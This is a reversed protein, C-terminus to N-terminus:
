KIAGADSVRIIDGASVTGNSPDYRIYRYGSDPNEFIAPSFGPYDFAPSTEDLENPGVSVLMWRVPKDNPATGLTYSIIRRGRVSEIYGGFADLPIQTMYAIPTTLRGMGYDAGPRYEAYDEPYQAHDVFYSELATALAGHDAMARSVKSRTVAALFNPLAIAALVAIIAVVVLLEILTFARSKGM